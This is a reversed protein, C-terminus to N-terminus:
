KINKVYALFLKWLDDANSALIFWGIKITMIDSRYIAFTFIFIFDFVFNDFSGLATGFTGLIM